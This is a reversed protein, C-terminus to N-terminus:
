GPRRRVIHGKRQDLARLGRRAREPDINSQELWERLFDRAGRGYVIQPLSYGPSTNIEIVMPGEDTLAIDNGLLPLEPFAEACQAAIRLLADWDPLQFGRFPTGLAPHREIEQVMLRRGPRTGYAPGLRGTAVDVACLLNGTKGMTFNDILSPGVLIKAIVAAVRGGGPSLITHVRLTPLGFDGGIPALAPHARLRRQVIMGACREALGPEDARAVFAGEGGSLDGPKVFLETSGLTPLDALDLAAAHPVGRERLRALQAAKNRAFVGGTEKNVVLSFEHNDARETFRPWSRADRDLLRYHLIHRPGVGYHARAAAIKALAPVARLGRDRWLDIAADRYDSLLGM